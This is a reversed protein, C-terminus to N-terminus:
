RKGSSRTRRHGSAGAKKAKPATLGNVVIPTWNAAGARKLDGLLEAESIFPEAQYIVSYFRTWDKSGRYGATDEIVGSVAPSVQDRTHVLKFEIAAGVSWIGCDPKFNKIGGGITVNSRFDSAFTARLYDHMPEQLDHEKAPQIKRRHILVHTSRLM